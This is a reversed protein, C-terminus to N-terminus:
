KRNREAKGFWEEFLELIAFRAKYKPTKAKTLLELGEKGFREELEAELGARDMAAPLCLPPFMVCWWNHGDAAGIRIRLADYMGAPMTFGDYEREDFYMRVLEAEATNGSGNARLTENATREIDGLLARVREEASLKDPANLQDSYRKLLEDRVLLKMRQDEDSDSNAIVHLRLTGGRIESCERAFCTMSGALASVFIIVLALLAATEFKVFSRKM